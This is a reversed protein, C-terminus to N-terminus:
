QWPRLDIAPGTVLIWCAACRPRFVEQAGLGLDVSENFRRSKVTSNEEKGVKGVEEEGGGCLFFNPLHPM